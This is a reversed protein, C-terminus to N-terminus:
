GSVSTDDRRRAVLFVGSGPGPMFSDTYALLLGIPLFLYSVAKSYSRLWYEWTKYTRYWRKGVWITREVEFGADALWGLLQCRGPPTTSWKPQRTQVFKPFSSQFGDKVPAYLILKGDTALHKVIEQLLHEPRQAYQICDIYLVLDYRNALRQQDLDGVWFHTTVAPRLRQVLSQADRIAEESLDFGDVRQVSLCHQALLMSSLGNACGVDLLCRPSYDQALRKIAGWKMLFHPSPAGWRLALRSYWFSRLASLIM